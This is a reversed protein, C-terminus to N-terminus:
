RKLNVAVIRIESTYRNGDADPLWLQNFDPLMETLTIPGGDPAKELTRRVAKALADVYIRSDFDVYFPKREAPIKVFAFRPIDNAKAWARARIFRDADEGEFAFNIESATFRWAERCIVVRDVTVRPTHAEPRMVSLANVVLMSLVDGFTEILDFRLRRDRTRVTLGADSKEIVMDAIPITQQEPSPISDHSIALRYDKRSALCYRTRQAANLWSKPTLPVLRPEPFDAEFIQQIEEPEPHQDVFLAAGITNIGIHLEGMVLLYDGRQIDELSSAAIMVDPSHYRAYQWGCRPADFAAEVLPRLEDSTFFLRRAGGNISLIDAWKEQVMAKIEDVPREGYDAMLRQMHSWFVPGSIKSSGVRRTLDSYLDNFAERFVEALKHTVWRASALLLSLPPGLEKIIESGMEVRLDRRCDQFVLSRGVYMQGDGRTPAFGTVSTFDEELNRIAQDAKGADGATNAIAERAAELRDLLEIAWRKLDADEIRELSRRLWREPHSSIPLDLGWSILGGGYLEELIEYVEDELIIEFPAYAVIEQAIEKATKRGACSKLVAVKKAPLQISRTVPFYITTGVIQLHPLCRPILWRRMGEKKAITAALVDICWHEFYVTRKEVLEPGPTASIAGSGGLRVWGVPGFFGITDNKLCYRQLYNAILEERRRQRWGKAPGEKIDRLLATLVNHFANRNQWIMAEQLRDSSVLACIAKTSQDAAEGYARLYNERAPGIAEQSAKLKEISARVPASLGDESPPKGAKLRRLAKLLPSLKEKCEWEGNLKLDDLEGNIADFAAEFARERNGEAQLLRDAAHACDPSSLKLAETAAFGAARLVGCPWLGWETSPLAVLHGPLQGVYRKEVGAGQGSGAPAAKAYKIEQSM